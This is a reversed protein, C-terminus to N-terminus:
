DEEEAEDEDTNTLATFKAGIRDNWQQEKVEDEIELHANFCLFEFSIYVGVEDFSIGISPLLNWSWYLTYASTSVRYKGIKREM